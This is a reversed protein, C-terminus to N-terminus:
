RTRGRPCRASPTASTEREVSKQPVLPWQSVDKRFNCSPSQIHRRTCSAGTQHQDTSPWDSCTAPLCDCCHVPHPDAGVRQTHQGGLCGDHWDVVVEQGARRLLALQAPARNVHGVDVLLHVLLVHQGEKLLVATRAQARVARPRSHQHWYSCPFWQRTEVPRYGAQLGQRVSGGGPHGGGSACRTQPTGHPSARWPPAPNCRRAAPHARKVRRRAKAM